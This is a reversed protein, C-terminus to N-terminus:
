FQPNVGSVRNININKPNIKYELLGGTNGDLPDATKAQMIYKNKVTGEIV